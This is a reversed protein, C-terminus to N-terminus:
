TWVFVINRNNTMFPQSEKTGVKWHQTIEWFITTYCNWTLHSHTISHISLSAFPTFIQNSKNKPHFRKIRSRFRQQIIKDFWETKRSCSLSLKEMKIRIFPLTKNWTTKGIDKTSQAMQMISFETAKGWVM